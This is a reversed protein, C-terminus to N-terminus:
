ASETTPTCALQRLCHSAKLALASRVRNAWGGRCLALCFSARMRALASLTLAAGLNLTMSVYSFTM